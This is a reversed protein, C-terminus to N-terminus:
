SGGLDYDPRAWDDDDDPDFGAATMREERDSWYGEDDDPDALQRTRPEEYTTRPGAEGTALHRTGLANCGRLRLLRRLIMTPMHLQAAYMAVREATFAHGCTCTITEATDPSM